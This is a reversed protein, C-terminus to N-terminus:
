PSWNLDYHAKFYAGVEPRETVNFADIVIQNPHLRVIYENGDAVALYFHIQETGGIHEYSLSSPHDLANMLKKELNSTKQTHFFVTVAILIILTAVIFTIFSQRASMPQRKVIPDNTRLSTEAM